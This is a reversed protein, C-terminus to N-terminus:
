GKEPGSSAWLAEVQEQVMEGRCMRLLERQVTLGQVRALQNAPVNETPIDLFVRHGEHRQWADTLLMQGADASALCPGIMLARTGPRTTLFGELQGRRRVIRLDDPQEAFLRLLLRRRDTRTMRWDLALLGEHDESRAREVGAAPPAATLVGEYRALEFQPVFGLKEYIPQGLPTADLRVSRVGREDLFALAHKMLATGVGRGRVAVDVLVMAVWAVPGFICTTTTGVPVGSLEAVFCGDPELDLMRRWDAETQNWGAQQRLRMRLALDAATMTRIRIL